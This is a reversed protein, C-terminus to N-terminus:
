PFRTQQQTIVYGTKSAGDVVVGFGIKNSARLKKGVVSGLLDADDLSTQNEDVLRLEVENLVDVEPVFHMLDTVRVVILSPVSAQNEPVIVGFVPWSQGKLVVLMEIAVFYNLRVHRLEALNEILDHVM